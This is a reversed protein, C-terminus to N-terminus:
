SGAPDPALGRKGGRPTTSTWEQEFRWTMSVSIGAEVGFLLVGGGVDVSVHGEITVESPCIDLRNLKDGAKVAFASMYELLDDIPIPTPVGSVAGGPTLSLKNYGLAKVEWDPGSKTKKQTKQVAM